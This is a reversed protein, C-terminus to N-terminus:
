WLQKQRNMVHWCRMTWNVICFDWVNECFIHVMQAGCDETDSNGCWKWASATNKHIYCRTFIVTEFWLCKWLAKPHIPEMFPLKLIQKGDVSSPRHEQVPRFYSNPFVRGHVNQATHQQQLVSQQIFHEPLCPLRLQVSCISILGKPCM